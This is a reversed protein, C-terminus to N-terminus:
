IQNGQWWRSIQIFPRRMTKRPGPMQYLNRAKKFRESAIKSEAQWITTNQSSGSMALLNWLYEMSGAILIELPEETTDTEGTIARVPSMCEFRLAYSGMPRNELKVTTGGVERWWNPNLDIYRQPFQGPNVRRKISKLSLVDSSLNTTNFLPVRRALRVPPVWFWVRPVVFTSPDAVGVVPTQNDSAADPLFGAGTTLQSLTSGGPDQTCWYHVGIATEPVTISNFQLIKGPTLNVTSTPSILTEGSASYISYAVTYTGTAWQNTQGGPDALASVTPAVSPDAVSLSAALHGWDYFMTNPDEAAEFTVVRHRQPYSTRIAYNAAKMWQEPNFLKFLEYTMTTQAYASSPLPSTLTMAGTSNVFGGSDAIRRWITSLNANGTLGPNICIYASDWDDDPEPRNIDYVVYLSGTPDVSSFTSPGPAVGDVKGGWLNMETAIERRVTYFPISM